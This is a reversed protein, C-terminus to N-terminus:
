PERDPASAAELQFDCLKPGKSPWNRDPVRQHGTLKGDQGTRPATPHWGARVTRGPQKRTRPPIWPYDQRTGLQHTGTQYPPNARINSNHRSCRQSKFDKRRIGGIVVKKQVCLASILLGASLYTHSPQSRLAAGEGSPLSLAQRGFGSATPDHPTAASHEVRFRSTGLELGSM